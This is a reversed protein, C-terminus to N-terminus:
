WGEGSALEVTAGDLIAGGALGAVAREGAGPDDQLGSCAGVLAKDCPMALFVYLAIGQRWEPHRLTRMPALKLSFSHNQM